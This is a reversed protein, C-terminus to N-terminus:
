KWGREATVALCFPTAATEGTSVMELETVEAEPRPNDWTRAYLRLTTGHRTTAPNWGNWVVKARPTAKQADWNWSDRLDEGYVLPITAEQGDAYRLRYRGVETGDAVSFRHSENGYGGYETAHLFHLKDCKLGVHPVSAKLPLSPYQTGRLRIFRPGVQFSVGGLDHRGAGLGNLANGTEGGDETLSQNAAPQLDLYFIQGLNPNAAAVVTPPPQGVPPRNVNAWFARSSIAGGISGMGVILVLVTGVIIGAKAGGSLNGFQEMLGQRQPWRRRLLVEIEAAPLGREILDREFRRENEAIALKRLQVVTLALLVGAVAMMALANESLFQTLGTDM